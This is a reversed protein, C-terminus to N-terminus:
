TANYFISGWFFTFLLMMRVKMPEFVHTLRLRTFGRLDGDSNSPAIKTGQEMEDILSFTM